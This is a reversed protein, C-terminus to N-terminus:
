EKLTSSFQWSSRFFFKIKKARKRGEVNQGRDLHTSLKPVAPSGDLPARPMSTLVARARAQSGTQRAPPSHQVLM